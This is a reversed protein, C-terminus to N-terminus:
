KSQPLPAYATSNGNITQAWLGARLVRSADAALSDTTAGARLNVDAPTFTLVAKDSAVLVGNEPKVQGLQLGEDLLSNIRRSALAARDGDGDALTALTQGAFDLERTLGIQRVTVRPAGSVLRVSRPTVPVQMQALHAQILGVREDTYPHDRLIGLQIDPSRREQEALRQMFTLMGVPNFGAREMLYAGGHDADREARESYKNNMVGMQALQAGQSLSAIDQMPVHALLAAIMGLAMQTNMKGAEHALAAAHHHAAHTIEHGLVGALEDDTKVFDMLGQNVYVNGGPLSFANIDKEKIIHFTWQFPYTHDNGFQALYPGSNAVVALRQGIKNVRDLEAKDTVFKMQKAVQAVVEQGQKQEEEMQHKDKSSLVPAAARAAPLEAGGWGLILMLALGWASSKRMM